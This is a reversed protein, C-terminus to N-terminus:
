RIHQERRPMRWRHAFEWVILVGVFLGIMAWDGCIRHGDDCISRQSTPASIDWRRPYRRLHMEIPMDQMECSRSGNRAYSHRFGHAGTSYGLERESARTFSASWANGGGIAYCTQYEIGRDLVDKPEDLRTAELREALDNSICAERVLGGKGVATYIEGRASM